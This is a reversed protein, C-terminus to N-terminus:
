AQEVETALAVATQSLLEHPKVQLLPLVSQLPAQTSKTVSALLQPPQPEPNAQLPPVGTHEPDVHTEPQGAAVGVSQPPVHTSAVLSTLSQPVQPFAHEVLTAFAVACHTLLAHVKVQLLPYVSQLPAQTLKVSSLLLQPPQPIAQAAPDLHTPATHVLPPQAGPEVSNVVVHPLPPMELKLESPATHTSNLPFTLPHFADFAWLRVIVTVPDVM